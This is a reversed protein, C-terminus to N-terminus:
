QQKFDGTLGKLIKEIVLVVIFSTKRNHCQKTCKFRYHQSTSLWDKDESVLEEYQVQFKDNHKKLPFAQM